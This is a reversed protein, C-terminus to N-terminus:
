CGVSGPASPTPTWRPSSSARAARPLRRARLRRARHADVAAACVADVTLETPKSEGYDLGMRQVDNLVPAALDDIRIEDTM